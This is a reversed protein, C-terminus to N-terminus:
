LHVPVRVDPGDRAEDACAVGCLHARVRLLGRRCRPCVVAEKFPKGSSGQITQLCGRTLFRAARPLTAATGYDVGGQYMDARNLCFHPIYRTNAGWAWGSLRAVWLLALAPPDEPRRGPFGAGRHSYGDAFNIASILFSATPSPFSLLALPPLSLWARFRIFPTTRYVTTSNLITSTCRHNYAEHGALCDFELHAGAELDM